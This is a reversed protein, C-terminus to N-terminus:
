GDGPAEELDKGQTHVEPLEPVHAYVWRDEAAEYVATFRLQESVGRLTRARRDVSCVDSRRLQPRELTESADQNRSKAAGPTRPSGIRIWGFDWHEHRM